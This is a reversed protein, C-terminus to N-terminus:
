TVNNLNFSWMGPVNLAKYVFTTASAWRVSPGNRPSVVFAGFNQINRSPVRFGASEVALYLPILAPKCVQFVPYLLTATNNTTAM